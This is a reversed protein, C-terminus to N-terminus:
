SRYFRMLMRQWQNCSHFIIAGLVTSRNIYSAAMRDMIWRFAVPNISHDVHPFFSWEGYRGM